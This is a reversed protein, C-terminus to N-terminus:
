ININQHDNTVFGCVGFLESDGFTVVGTSIPLAPAVFIVTGFKVMFSAVGVTIALLISAEFSPKTDPPTVHPVISVTLIFYNCTKWKKKM